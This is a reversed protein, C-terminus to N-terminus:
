GAMLLRACRRRRARPWHHSRPLNHSQAGIPSGWSARGQRPFNRERPASDRRSIRDKQASNTTGSSGDMQRLSWVSGSRMHPFFSIAFFGKLSTATARALSIARMAKVIMRLLSSRDLPVPTLLTPPTRPRGRWLGLCWVFRPHGLPSACSLPNIRFGTLRVVGTRARRLHKSGEANPKVRIRCEQPIRRM